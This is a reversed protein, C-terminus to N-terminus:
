SEEIVQVLQTGATALAYLEYTGAFPWMGGPPVEIGRAPSLVVGGSPGFLVPATAALPVQVTLMRRTLNQAILLTPTVSGVSVRAPTTIATAATETTTVNGAVIVTSALDMEADDSITLVVVQAVASAVDLYTWKLELPVPGFKTGADVDSLAIPQATAGRATITVPATSSKIYLFRGGPATLTGAGSFTLTYNRTSM